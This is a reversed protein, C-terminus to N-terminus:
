FDTFGIRAAYGRLGAAAAMFERFSCVAQVPVDRGDIVATFAICVAPAGSVMAREKVAVQLTGHQEDGKEPAGTHVLRDFDRDTLLLQIM